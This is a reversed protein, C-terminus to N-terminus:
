VHHLLAGFNVSLMAGEAQEPMTYMSVAPFYTGEVMDRRACAVGDSPSTIRPAM